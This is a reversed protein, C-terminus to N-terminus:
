FKTWQFFATHKTGDILKVDLRRCTGAWSKESKWVYIYQKATADYTLSSNGANVTEEIADPSESISGCTVVTSSPFGSAFIALGQYGGLNFKVPIASGAKAVNLNTNDVPQFFGTWNYIVQVTTTSASSVGGDKDTVTASITRTGVTAGTYTCTASSSGYTTPSGTVAASGNDCDISTAYPQDYIGAPDTFSVTVTTSVQNNSGLTLQGSPSAVVSTITPPVNNITVDTSQEGSVGGDKDFVKGKVTRTGNDHTACSASNTSSAGAYTSASFGNGDGCDFAYHLSLADVSSPDSVGTLSFVIDSGEDVPSNTSLGTASPPVNNVTVSGTYETADGDKDKVKGKVSRTGNDDTSCSRSSASGFAGYGSGDGCDFAYTFGATVDVSSPDQVDTLDLKFNSGEDVPSEASFTATPAVNKVLVSSTYETAGGDKDKIKGGVSRASNDDTPCSVSSTSSFSSYGNGDGCDFAYMFGATQDDSSADHPNAFQLTFSSGENVPTQASFTATPAVNSVNVTADSTPAHGHGDDAKLTATYSGNDTCTISPNLVKTDSFTCKPSSSSWTLDLADGDPDTATANNLAIPSGEDGSYISGANVTPASNVACGNIMEQQTTEGLSGAGTNNDKAKITPTGCSSDKYYFTANQATSPISVQTIPSGGCGVTAFFTGSGSTSSLNVTVAADPRVPQNFQNRTQVTIVSSCTNVATTFAATTFVLQTPPATILTTADNATNNAANNDGGGSVTATNTVSSNGTKGVTVSLTIAPDPTSAALADSRTCTLTGLVCSWGTGSIATATMNGPLGNDVVTITGSTPDTGINQVTITYNADAGRVFDADTHAKTITLDPGTITLTQGASPSSSAGNCTASAEAKIFLYQTGPAVGTTPISMSGGSTGPSATASVAVGPSPKAPTLCSFSSSAPATSTSNFAYSTGAWTPNGGGGSRTAGATITVSSGSALTTPSASNIFAQDLNGDFFVATATEGTARSTATLSFAVGLDIDQVVYTSDWFRGNADVGVAWDVPPHNQPTEDLHIDLSDEPQWGWGALKLTDSPVYDDKDTTLVAGSATSATAFAVPIHAPAASSPSGSTTETPTDSCSGILVAALIGSLSLAVSTVRRM